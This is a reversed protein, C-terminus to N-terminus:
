IEWRSFVDIFVAASDCELKTVSYPKGRCREVHHRQNPPQSLARVMMEMAGPAMVDKPKADKTGIYSGITDCSWPSYQGAYDSKGFAKSGEDGYQPSLRHCYTGHILNCQLISLQPVLQVRAV